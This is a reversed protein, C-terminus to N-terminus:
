KHLKFTVNLLKKLKAVLVPSPTQLVGNELKVITDLKENLATALEKQTLGKGVRASQIAKRTNFDTTKLAVDVGSDLKNEHSEQHTIKSYLKLFADSKAKSKTFTIQSWDQHDHMGLEATIRKVRLAILNIKM